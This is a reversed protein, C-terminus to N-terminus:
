FVGIEQMHDILMGGNPKRYNSSWFPDQERGPPIPSWVDDWKIYYNFAIKFPIPHGINKIIISIRDLVEQETPFDDIPKNNQNHKTPCRNQLTVAKEHVNFFM